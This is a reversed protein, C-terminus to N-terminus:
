TPRTNEMEEEMNNPGKHRHEKQGTTGQDWEQDKHMSTSVTKARIADEKEKSGAHYQVGTTKNMYLGADPEM